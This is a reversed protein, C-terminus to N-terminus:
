IVFLQKVTIEEGVLFCNGEEEGEQKVVAEEERIFNMKKGSSKLISEAFTDPIVAVQVGFRLDASFVAPASSSQLCTTTRKSEAKRESQRRENKRQAKSVFGRDCIIKKPKSTTLCCAFTKLLWTLLQQTSSVAFSEQVEKARPTERKLSAKKKTDIHRVSSCQM